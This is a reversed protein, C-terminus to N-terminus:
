KNWFYYQPGIVSSIALGDISLFVTWVCQEFLANAHFYLVPRARNSHPENLVVRFM